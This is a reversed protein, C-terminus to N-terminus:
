LGSLKYEFSFHRARGCTVFWLKFPIGYCFNGLRSKFGGSIAISEGELADNSFLPRSGTLPSRIIVVCPIRRQPRALELTDLKINRFAIKIDRKIRKIQQFSLESRLRINILTSLKDMLCRVRRHRLRVNLARRSWRNMVFGLSHRPISRDSGILGDMRRGIDARVLIGRM